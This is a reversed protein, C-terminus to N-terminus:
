GHRQHDRLEQGLPHHALAQEFESLTGFEAALEEAEPLVISAHGGRQPVTRALRTDSATVQNAGIATAAEHPPRKINTKWAPGEASAAQDGVEYQGAQRAICPM